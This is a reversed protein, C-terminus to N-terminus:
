IMSGDVSAYALPYSAEGITDAVSWDMQEIFPNAQNGNEDTVRYISTAPVKVGLLIEMTQSAEECPMAQGLYVCSAELYPTM